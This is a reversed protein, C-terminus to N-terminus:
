AVKTPIEPIGETFSERVSQAFAEIADEGSGAATPRMFPYAPVPKKLDVHGGSKRYRKRKGPDSVLKKSQWHSVMRHGYEVMRAVFGLRGFGVQVVVGKGDADLAVDTTVHAKVAGPPPYHHVSGDEMIPSMEELLEAVPVAAAAGARAFANKAILKPANTLMACVEEIGAIHMSFEEPM